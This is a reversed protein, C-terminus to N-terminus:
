RGRWPAAIRIRRQAGSVDLRSPQSITQLNSERSRLCSRPPPSLYGGGQSSEIYEPLIQM